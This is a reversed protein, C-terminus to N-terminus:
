YVLPAAQHLPLSSASEPTDEDNIRDGDYTLSFSKPAMGKAKAIADYIKRFKTGGKVKITIDEEGTGGRVILAHKVAKAPSGPEEKASM